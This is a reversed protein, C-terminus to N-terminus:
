GVTMAPFTRTIQYTRGLGHGVRAQLPLRTVDRGFMAIRGGDMRLEGTILNFLTTKGAGNPGIIGHRAGAAVSLTIGALALVGGFNKEVDIVQLAPAEAAGSGPM